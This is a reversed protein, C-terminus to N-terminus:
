EPNTVARRRFENTGVCSKPDEPIRTPVAAEALQNEAWGAGGVTCPHAVAGEVGLDESDSCWPVDGVNPKIDRGTIVHFYGHKRM